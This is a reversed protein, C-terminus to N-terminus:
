RRAHRANRGRRAAAGSRWPGSAPRAPRRLTGRRGAAARGCARRSRAPRGLYRPLPSPRGAFGLPLQTGPRSRAQVWTRRRHWSLTSGARRPADPLSGPSRDTAPPPLPCCRFRDGPQPLSCAHQPASVSSPRKRRGRARTTPLGRAPIFFRAKWPVSVHLPDGSNLSGAPHWSEAVLKM